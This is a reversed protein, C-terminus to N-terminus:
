DLTTEEIEEDDLLQVKVNESNMRGSLLEDLKHITDELQKNVKIKGTWIDYDLYMNFRFRPSPASKNLFLLSGLVLDHGNLIKTEEPFQAKKNRRTGTGRSQM